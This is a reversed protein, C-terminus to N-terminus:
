SPWREHTSRSTRSAEATSGRTAGRVFAVESTAASRETRQALKGLITHELLVSYLEGTMFTAFDVLTESEVIAWKSHTGQLVVLAEGTDNILAGALQTEEGRIVDPIGASDICQAGPVIALEAKPTRVLSEGLRSLNVPCSLYNTEIWGQRSGIMGCAIRPLSHESWDGLLSGLAAAFERDRISQVGLPASQTGLIVGGADIRYTRASTTGWDIAILAAPRSDTV